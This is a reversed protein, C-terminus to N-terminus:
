LKTDCVLWCKVSPDKFGWNPLMLLESWGEWEGGCPLLAKSIDAPDRQISLIFKIRLWVLAILAKM